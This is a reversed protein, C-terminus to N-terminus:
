RPDSRGDGPRGGPPAEVPHVHPDARCGCRDGRFGLRLDARLEHPVERLWEDAPRRDVDGDHRLPRDPHRHRRPAGLAQPGERQVGLQPHARLVGLRPGTVACLVAFMIASSVVGISNIFNDVIDLNNLGSRTGFLVLSIVTAPVGLVLASRAPSWGFKDQLGGSVVQLLSLLSTVGALVLSSFFLVGFLPGGPMMSIIKPFTVFSLIPGTLGEVESVSVGGQHAMFGVASFVGIGALIEFSSNAFGAVLATGTM